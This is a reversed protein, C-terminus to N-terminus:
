KPLAFIFVSGANVESEVWIRGNHAEVIRKVIALGLGTGGFRRRSSGDIQYFRDFIREIKDLPLGIGEDAVSVVVEDQYDEMRVTIVGGDPSFKIANGILNDLVQNVRGKDMPVLPSDEPLIHDIVLGKKNAVLRHGAVSTRILDTLSQPLLQLNGADIRQLTIIDDILRTIENTKESVILLAEQQEGNLLGMEGAMLLDVYGKVFTLPTRLEHSLNQVLEDKIRDSEKLEDYAEALERARRELEEFMRANAIAISVQAAAIMMLQVDSQSFAHAQASDVSLTGVPRDRLMLPVTLLSRVVDDFFLFDPEEYTDRIYVLQGSRVVQGSVSEDLRMRAKLYEPNVGAAAEVVLEQRSDTLMTIASARANLLGRLTQVTTQLISNLELKGTVQKAMDVLASMDRLQRKFRTFLRANNVAVAAQDALLNLLLLEDDNFTHPFLYTVTFAGIVLDNHRLPFGAISHIGWSKTESTQYLPHEGARNIVIPEGQQVVRATLGEARPEKVASHRRGDRWLASGFTFRGTQADYLFIHLNSANILKLASETITNLVDSLRLPTNLRLAIQHLTELEAVRRQSQSFLYAHEIAVAAQSALNQTLRLEDDTFHRPTTQQGLALLGLVKSRRILPVLLLSHLGGAELLQVAEDDNEEDTRLNCVIQMEFLRQVLAFRELHQINRLGISSAQAVDNQNDLMEAQNQHAVPTLNQHTQDWVFITCSDVNIARVMESVVTHLVFDQDLNATMMATAQYLTDLESLQQKTKQDVRDIKPFVATGEGGGAIVGDSNKTDAEVSDVWQQQADEAFCPATALVAAGLRAQRVEAQTFPIPRKVKLTYNTAGLPLSLQTSTSLLSGSPTSLLESESGLRDMFATALQQIMQFTYAASVRQQLAELAEIDTNQQFM